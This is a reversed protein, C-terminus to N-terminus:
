WFRLGMDYPIITEKETNLITNPYEITTIHYFIGQWISFLTLIVKTDRENLVEIRPNIIIDEAIFKNTLYGEGNIRNIEISWKCIKIM